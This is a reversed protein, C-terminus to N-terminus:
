AFELSNLALYIDSLVHWTCLTCLPVLKCSVLARGGIQFLALLSHRTFARVCACVQTSDIRYAFYIIFHILTSASWEVIAMVWAFSLLLSYRHATM